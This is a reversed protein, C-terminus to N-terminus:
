DLAHRAAAGQFLIRREVESTGVHETSETAPVFRPFPVPACQGAGLVLLDTTEDLSPKLLRPSSREGREFPRGHL